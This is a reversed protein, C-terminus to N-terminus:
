NVVMSGQLIFIGTGINCGINQMAGSYASLTRPLAKPQELPSPKLSLKHQIDTIDVEKLDKM